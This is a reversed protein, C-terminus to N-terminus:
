LFNAFLSAANGLLGLAQGGSQAAGYQSAANQAMKAQYNQNAIGGAYMSEPNFLRPGGGTVLAGYSSVAPTYASGVGSEGMYRSMPVSGLAAAQQAAQLAYARRQAERQQGFQYRNLVEALAAQDSLGTGRSAYAARASQQAARQEEPSLEQGMRLGSEAQSTMERTIGGVGLQDLYSQAFQGAGPLAGVDSQRQRRQLDEYLGYNMAGFQPLAAQQDLFTKTSLQAYKPQYQQELSFLDPAISKQARMTDLLEKAYSRQKPPEPTSGFLSSLFGM